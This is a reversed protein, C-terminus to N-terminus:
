LSLVGLNKGCVEDYLPCYALDGNSPGSLYEWVDTYTWELIPHVRICTPWTDDTLQLESMTAGHPDGRRTGLFILKVDSEKLLTDLGSM